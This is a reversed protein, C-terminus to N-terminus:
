CIFNYRIGSTSTVAETRDDGDFAIARVVSMAPESVSYVSHSDSYRLFVRGSLNDNVSVTSGRMSKVINKLRDRQRCVARLMKKFNAAEGDRTKIFSYANELAKQLTGKHARETELESKMAAHLREQHNSKEEFSALDKRLRLNDQEVAECIIEKFKWTKWHTEEAVPWSEPKM